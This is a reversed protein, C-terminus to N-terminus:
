RTARASWDSLWGWRRPELSGSRIAPNGIVNTPVCNEPSRVVRRHAFARPASGTLKEWKTYSQRATFTSPSSQPPVSAPKAILTASAGEM